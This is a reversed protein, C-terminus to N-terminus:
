QIYKFYEIIGQVTAAANKNNFDDTTILKFDDSNTMFWNETLISPCDSIRCVQMPPSYNLLKTGCSRLADCKASIEKALQMSFPNYYYTSYGSKKSSSSGNRHFSIFIDPKYQRALSNRTDLTVKVDTTRTMVVTAGLDELITKVKHALILNLACEYQSKNTAYGTAGSDGTGGHGPDLMIVTNELTYGYSNSSPTIKAPNLFSLMLQGNENYSASWGYFMGKRRMYLRLTYESNKNKIWEAKNFVPDNTFDLNGAADNCYAFSFDIYEYTTSSVEYEAPINGTGIYEQPALTVNFPAKWESNLTIITHRGNNEKKAISIANHEPLSGYHLSIYDEKIGRHTDTRSYVRKGYNMLRYHYTGDSDDNVIDTSNCYDVTGKPLYANICRSRNDSTDGNFTEAQEREIRLIYGMKGTQNNNSFEPDPTPATDNSKSVKVTSGSRTQTQGNFTAKFSIKGLNQITSTEKPTTFSGTYTTYSSDDKNETPTLTISQNNLTATVTAGKICIALVKFSTSGSLTIQNTPSVSRFINYSYKIKYTQKFEKHTLTFVNDGKNLEVKHSFNGLEDRQIEIDNIYVPSMPDSCGNIIYYKEDTTVTSESPNYVTLVTNRINESLGGFIENDYSKIKEWVDKNNILTKIDTVIIGNFNKSKIITYNNYFNESKASIQLLKQTNGFSTSWLDFYSNNKNSPSYEISIFDVLSNEALNHVNLSNTYKIKNDKIASDGDFLLGVYINSSFRQTSTIITSIYKHVLKEKHKQLGFLSGKIIYDAYIKENFSCAYNSYMIGSIYKYKNVLNGIINIFETNPEIVNVPYLANIDFVFYIYFGYKLSSNYIYEILDQEFDAFYDIVNSKFLAKQNYVLDIYVTNFFSNKMYSLVSDVDQCIASFDNNVAYDINPKLTFGRTIKARNQNTSTQTTIDWNESGVSELHSNDYSSVTQQDCASFLNLIFLCILFICLPKATLKIRHM